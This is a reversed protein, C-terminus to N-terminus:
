HVMYNCQKCDFAKERSHTFMHKKLTGAEKGDNQAVHLKLDKNLKFSLNCHVCKYPKEEVQLEM